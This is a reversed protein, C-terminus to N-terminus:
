NGGDTQTLNALTVWGWLGCHAADFRDGNALYVTQVQDDTDAESALVADKGDSAHKRVTWTCTGPVGSNATRWTGKKIDKGATYHGDGVETKLAAPACAGLTAVSLLLGATAAALTKKIISRRAITSVAM